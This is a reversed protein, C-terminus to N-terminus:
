SSQGTAYRISLTRQGPGPKALVPLPVATRRPQAGAGMSALPYWSGIRGRARISLVRTGIVAGDARQASLVRHRDIPM